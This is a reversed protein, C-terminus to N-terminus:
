REGQSLNSTLINSRIGVFTDADLAARGVFLGDVDPLRSLEAANERSVSGGYLLPTSDAVEAGWFGALTRRITRHAAFAQEPTAPTGGVGIAWEPEYAIVTTRRAHAPLGALGAKLQRALTEDTAGWRRDDATDGVCLLPRLGNSAARLVKANIIADTEAHDRRREQHGIEVLVAGADAVQRASVDGTHAGDEEPHIDQAGVLVGTDRLRSAVAAIATFSPIVFQQVVQRASLDDFATAVWDRAEAITKNMKWSTGLWFMGNVAM